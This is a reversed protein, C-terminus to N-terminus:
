WFQKMDFSYAIIGGITFANRSGLKQTIPSAAADGTLRDYRAYGTTSWQKSWKYTAQASIGVSKVGGFADFPTVNGNAAAEAASVSFYKKAYRDNTTVLRPGASLTWPGIKEVWDAGIDAVWGHHGHFGRRVEIRARLKEMPWLEAFLGAEVTWDVDRIGNLESHSDAKRAGIFRGVPGAKLWSTDYLAYGIGDDFTTFAAETGARRIGFGPAAYPSLNKAGDYAPSLGVNGKITVTWFDDAAFAPATFLPLCALVALPSFRSM